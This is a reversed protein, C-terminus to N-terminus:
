TLLPTEENVVPAEPDEEDDDDVKMGTEDEDKSSSDTDLVPPSSDISKLYDEPTSLESEPVTRIFYSERNGLISGFDLSLLPLLTLGFGFSTSVPTGSYFLACFFVM